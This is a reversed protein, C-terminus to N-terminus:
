HITINGAKLPASGSTSFVTAGAANKIVLTITDSGKPGSGVDVVTITFTAGSQGNYSGTGSWTEKNTALQSASTVVRGHFNNKSSNSRTQLQGRYTGNTQPILNFGFNFRGGGNAAWGGGTVKNGAAAVTVLTDGTVPVTGCAAYKLDGVFSTGVAYIDANLPVPITAVGSADTVAAYHTTVPPQASDTVNFAITHGFLDGQTTDPDALQARLATNTLPAVLTAGTYALTCSDPSVVITSSGSSASHDIDGAFNVSVQVNGADQLLQPLTTSANGSSNTPGASTTQSSSGTGVKLSLTKGALPANATTDVLNGGLLIPDSSTGTKAGNYVTTSDDPDNVATVTVTVHGTATGAHGDSIAYDFGDPGNFNAAPTYTCAGATTCSVTGHGAAPTPSTVSLSDGDPDTDNGLVSVDKATDEATTLSDGNAVPAGNGDLGM